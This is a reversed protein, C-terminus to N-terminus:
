HTNLKALGKSIYEKLKTLEKLKLERRLLGCDAIVKWENFLRGRNEKVIGVRFSGKTNYYAEIYEATSTKGIGDALIELESIADILDPIEDIDIFSSRSRLEDGYDIRMRLGKVGDNKVGAPYFFVADIEFSGFKGMKYYEKVIIGSNEAVFSDIATKPEDRQEQAICVNASLSLFLAICIGKFM